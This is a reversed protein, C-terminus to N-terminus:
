DGNDDGGDSPAPAPAPEPDSSGGGDTGSNGSDGSDGSDGSNGTNGSDGSDGSDGSGDSDGSGTDGSGGSGASPKTSASSTGSGSKRDLIDQYIKLTGNWKKIFAEYPAPDDAVLSFAEILYTLEDYVQDCKRRAAALAGIEKESVEVGQELRLSKVEDHAQKMQQYLYTAGLAAIATQMDQSELETILNSLQGSEVDIQANTKVKYLDFWHKASTAAVDRTEDGSGAFANVVAHLRTYYNDRRRDARDRRAIIESARAIMYYKDEDSFATQLQAQLATLKAATLGSDAFVTLFAHILEYHQPNQLSAKNPRLFKTM